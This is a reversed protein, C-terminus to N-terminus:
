IHIEIILLCNEKCSIKKKCCYGNAEVVQTLVEETCPDIVDAKKGSIGDRFENNIFLKGPKISFNSKLKTTNATEVTNSIVM